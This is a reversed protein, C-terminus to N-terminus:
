KPQHNPNTTLHYKANPLTPNNTAMMMLHNTAVMVIRAKTSAISHNYKGKTKDGCWWWKKNNWWKYKYLEKKETEQFLWRPKENTRQQSHNGQKNRSNRNNKYNPKSKVKKLENVAVRLALIQQEEPTPAQWLDKECIINYKNKAWQM